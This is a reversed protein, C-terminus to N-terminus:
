TELPLVPEQTRDDFFDDLAVQVAAVGATSEGADATGVASGFEEQHEGAPGAPETRRAMRLPKLLPALPHALCEEQINGVALDDEGDGPHEAEEEFVLTTEEPLEAPRCDLREEFVELGCGAWFKDRTDHGDDVRKALLDIEMGM